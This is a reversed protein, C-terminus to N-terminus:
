SSSQMKRTPEATKLVTQWFFGTQFSLIINGMSVSDGSVQGLLAGFTPIAFLMPYVFEWRTKVPAQAAGDPNKRREIAVSVVRAAMGLLMVIFLNLERIPSREFWQKNGLTLPEGTWAFVAAVVAALVVAFTVGWWWRWKAASAILLAFLGFIAVIVFWVITM